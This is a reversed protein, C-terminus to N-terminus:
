YIETNMVSKKEPKRKNKKTSYIIKMAYSIPKMQIQQNKVNKM